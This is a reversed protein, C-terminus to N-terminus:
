QRRRNVLDSPSLGVYRRFIRSFYNPDQFGVRSSTEKVSLSNEQLLVKAQEIRYKTLYEVFSTGLHENFLRCLYSSTIKCEDAISSLQITQNYSRHIISLAKSLHQPLTRSGNNKLVTRITQVMEEAWRRCEAASRLPMIADAPNIDIHASSFLESDIGAWLLTFLAVMKAKAVEFPSDRFTRLSFDDLLSRGAEFNSRLLTSCIRRMTEKEAGFAKTVSGPKDFARYAENFSAALESYHRMGGKGISIVLPELEKSITRLFGDLRDLSQDEPFFFLLRGATTATFCRFKFQIKECLGDFVAKRADISLEEGVDVIRITGRESSLSYLRSFEEWEEPSPSTWALSALLRDKVEERTKQLFGIEQLQLSSLKRTQDLHLKVRDLEGLLARRSIPKVMYSFVGLPIARQAVDFREYATALIFVIQPYQSRIQRIAEIGDIGPMQIDMFVLDPKTDHIIRVAETGSRAKGCLAFHEGDKELIFAFSDLVPEEDDVIVVRYM